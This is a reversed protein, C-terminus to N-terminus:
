GNQTSFRVEDALPRHRRRGSGQKCRHGSRGRSAASPNLSLSGFCAASQGGRSDKAGNGETCRGHQGTAFRVSGQGVATAFFAFRRRGPHFLVDNHGRTIPRLSGRPRLSCRAYIRHLSKWARKCCRQWTKGWTTVLNSLLAEEREPPLDPAILQGALVEYAHPHWYAKEELPVQRNLRDTIIYEMGTLKRRAGHFIVCQFLTKALFVADAPDIRWRTFSGSLSPLVQEANPYRGQPNIAWCLTWTGAQM